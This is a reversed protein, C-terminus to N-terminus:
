QSLPRRLHLVADLTLSVVEQCWGIVLLPSPPPAARILFSASLALFTLPTLEEIESYM